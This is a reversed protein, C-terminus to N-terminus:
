DEDESGIWTNKINQYTGETNLVQLTVNFKGVSDDNKRFMIGYNSEASNLREDLASIKDGKYNDMFYDVGTTDYVTADIKGKELEKFVKDMSSYAKIKNEESLNQQAYEANSTGEEVGITKGVLEKRDTINKDANVMIKLTNEFYVDSFQFEKQRSDTICIGSIALDIKKERLLKTLERMPAVRLEYKFGLYESLGKMLDIDFGKMEKTKEDRFSFPAMGDSVGIVLEKGKMSDKVESATINEKKVDKNEAKEKNWPFSCGGLCFILCIMMCITLLKKM